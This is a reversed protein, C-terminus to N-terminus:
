VYLSSVNFSITARKGCNLFAKSERILFKSFIVYNMGNDTFYKKRLTSSACPYSFKYIYIKKYKKYGSM